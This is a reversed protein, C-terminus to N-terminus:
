CPKIIRTTRIPLIARITIRRNVKIGLKKSAWIVPDAVITGVLGVGICWVRGWGSVDDGTLGEKLIDFCYGGDDDKKGM